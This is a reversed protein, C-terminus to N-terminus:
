ATCARQQSAQEPWLTIQNFGFAPLHVRLADADTPMATFWAQEPQTGLGPMPPLAQLVTCTQRAVADAPDLWVMGPPAIRRLQDLMFTYHTCGLGVADLRASDPHSLLGEIDKYVLDDPVSRGRFVQEAYSALHPAAHAILTCEPAYLTHLRSLYPRRITARTALLGIVGTETQRAAWRIPPVCGIFPLSPCTTRLADLALTSATNCAIVVAQPRLREVAHSLLSIIRQTLVADDQEGYPFVATDALYDVKVSPAHARIARVIGLGGIGSDFALVRYPGTLAPGTTQM